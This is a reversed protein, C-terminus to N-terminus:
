RRRFIRGWNWLRTRWTSDSTGVTNIEPSSFSMIRRRGLHYHYGPISVDDDPFSAASPNDDYKEIEVAMSSNAPIELDMTQSLRFLRATRNSESGALHDDHQKSFKGFMSRLVHERECDGFVSEQDSYDDDVFEGEIIQMANTSRLSYSRSRVQGRPLRDEGRHHQWRFQQREYRPSSLPPELIAMDHCKMDSNSQPSGSTPTLSDPTVGGDVQDIANEVVLTDLDIEAVQDEDIHSWLGKQRLYQGGVLGTSICKFNYYPGSKQYYKIQSSTLRVITWKEIKDNFMVILDGKKPPRAQDLRFYEEGEDTEDNTEDDTENDAEIETDDDGRSVDRDGDNDEVNEDAEDDSSRVYDDLAAEEDPIFEEMDEHAQGEDSENNPPDHELALEEIGDREQVGHRRQVRQRRQLEVPQAIEMFFHEEDDDHYSPTPDWMAITTNNDSDKIWYQDDNDTWDEENDSLWEDGDDYGDEDEESWDEEIPQFKKKTKLM